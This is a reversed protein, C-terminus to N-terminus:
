KLLEIEEKVNGVVADGRLKEKCGFLGGKGKGSM